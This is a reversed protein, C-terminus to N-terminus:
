IKLQIIIKIYSKYCSRDNIIHTLFNYTTLQLASEVLYVIKIYM